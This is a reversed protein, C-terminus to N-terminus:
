VRSSIIEGSRCVCDQTQIQPAFLDDDESGSQEHL